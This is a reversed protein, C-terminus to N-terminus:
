KFGTYTYLNASSLNKYILKNPSSEVIQYADYNYADSPNSPLLKEGKFWGRFMTFYVGGSVEWYGFEKNEQKLISMSDFVKFEIIYRSDEMREISTM